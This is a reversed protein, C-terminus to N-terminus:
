IKYTVCSFGGVDTVEPRIGRERLKKVAADRYKMSFGDFILCKRPEADVIRSYEPYREYFGQPDMLRPSIIVREDVALMVPYATWYTSTARSINNNELFAALKRYDYDTPRFAPAARLFALSVALVLLAFAAPKAREYLRDFVLATIGICAIFNPAMYRDTRLGPSFFFLASVAFLALMARATYERRMAAFAYVAAGAFLLSLPIGYVFFNGMTGGQPVREISFFRGGLRFVTAFPHIINYIIMPSLGALFGLEASIRARNDRFTGYMFTLALVAAFFSFYQPQHYLGFGNILGLAAPEWAKARGEAARRVILFSLSSFLLLEVVPTLFTVGFIGAPIFIFFLPVVWRSRRPFLLSFATIGALEWALVGAKFVYGSVGFVRFLVASIVSHLTGAYHAAWLFVSFDKGRMIHSAMLGFVAEDGDLIGRTFIIYCIREAAVLLLSVAFLLRTKKM